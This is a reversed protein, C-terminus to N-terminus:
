YNKWLTEIRHNVEFEVKNYGNELLMNYKKNDYGSILMKCKCGICVELFRDQTDDEMDIDYRRNSTRTSQVYPPDCYILVNDKNKYKSILEIGDRNCVLVNVLRDHLEDLREVSSLFDSVSKSTKRRIVCNMKFGGNGNFSTRNVYYFRYARDLRTLEDNKLSLAYERNMTESYPSLECLRQFEGFLEKDQLVKYLSYVNNDLDNYIEVPPIYDMHLGVGYSGGFPEIYTNYTEKDPFYDIIHKAMGNKGGFYIIPANM